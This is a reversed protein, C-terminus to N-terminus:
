KEDAQCRDFKANLTYYAPQYNFIMNPLLYLSIGYFAYFWHFKNLMNAVFPWNHATLIQFLKQNTDYNSSTKKQWFQRWPQLFFLLVSNVKKRKHDWLIEWLIIQKLMLMEHILWYLSVNLSSNKLVQLHLLIDISTKRSLAKSILHM